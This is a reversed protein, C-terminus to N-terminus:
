KIRESCRSEDLVPMGMGFPSGHHAVLYRQQLHYAERERLIRNRCSKKTWIGSRDQLYHVFEHALMARFHVDDLHQDNRMVITGSSDQYYGGISCHRAGPPCLNGPFYETSRFEIRPCTIPADYSSQAIVWTWLIAM